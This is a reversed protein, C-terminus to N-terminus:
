KFLLQIFNIMYNSCRHEQDSEEM